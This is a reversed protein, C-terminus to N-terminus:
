MHLLYTHRGFPPKTSSESDNHISQIRHTHCPKWKRNRLHNMHFNNLNSGCGDWKKMFRLNYKSTSISNPILFWIKDCDPLSTFWHLGIKRRLSMVNVCFSGLDM